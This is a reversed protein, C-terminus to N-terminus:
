DWFNVKFAKRYHNLSDGLSGQAEREVALEYHEIASQPEQPGSGSDFVEEDGGSPAGNKGDLTRSIHSDYTEDEAESQELAESQKVTREPGRQLGHQPRRTSSSSIANSAKKGEANTRASVEEKWTQRFSELEANSEEMIREATCELLSLRAYSDHKLFPSILDVESNPLKDLILPTM